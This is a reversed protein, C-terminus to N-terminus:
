ELSQSSIGGAALVRRFVWKIALFIGLSLIAVVFGYTASGSIDPGNIVTVVGDADVSVVAGDRLDPLDFNENTGYAVYSAELVSWRGAELFGLEGESTGVFIPGQTEITIM